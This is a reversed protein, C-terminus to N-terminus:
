HSVPVGLRGLLRGIVPSEKAAFTASVHSRDQHVVIGHEIGPCIGGPCVLSDVDVLAVKPNRKVLRELVAKAHMTERDKSQDFDCSSDAATAVCDLTSTPLTPLPSMVLLKAGESTFVDFPQKWSERWLRNYSPDGERVVRSGERIDYIQARAGLIVYDPDYRKVMAPYVIHRWETCARGITKTQGSDVHRAITFDTPACKSRTLSLLHWNSAEALKQLAPAWMEAHSDGVLLVTPGTGNHLLCADSKEPSPWERAPYPCGKPPRAIDHRANVVQQARPSNQLMAPIVFLGLLGSVTVGAVAVKWFRIGPLLRRRVPQELLYYSLASAALILASLPLVGLDDSWFVILPWHWLYISYSLRGLWAPVASGFLRAPATTDGLDVGAILSVTTATVAVAAWGPYSTSGNITLMLWVVGGLGVGSLALAAVNLARRSSVPKRVSSFVRTRRQLAVALLGGAALQFARTHTGYYAAVSPTLVVALVISAVTIAGFAVMVVDLVRRRSRRAVWLCGIVLAPWVLYFQEEVALSWFHIFPSPQTDTAFYGRDVGVWDWNAFYMAASSAHRRLNEYELPSSLMKGVVVSFVIVLWAAPLLRRARRAYFRSLVVSGRDLAEQILLGSILYGSLVFFVDVGVFGGPIWGFGLHFLVVGIVALARIGDIQPRYSPRKLSGSSATAGDTV